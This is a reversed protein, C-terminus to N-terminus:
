FHIPHPPLFLMQSTVRPIQNHFFAAFHLSYHLPIIHTLSSNQPHAIDSRTQISVIVYIDVMRM